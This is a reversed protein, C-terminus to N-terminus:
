GTRGTACVRNTAQTSILLAPLVLLHSIRRDDIGLCVGLCEPCPNKKATSQGFEELYFTGSCGTTSKCSSLEGAVGEESDDLHQYQLQHHQLPVYRVASSDPKVPQATLPTTFALFVLAVARVLIWQQRPSNIWNM